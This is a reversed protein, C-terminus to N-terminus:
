LPRYVLVRVCYLSGCAIAITKCHTKPCMCSPSIVHSSVTM